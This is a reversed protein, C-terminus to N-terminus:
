IKYKKCEKLSSIHKVLKNALSINVGSKKYSNVNRENIFQYNIKIFNNLFVIRIKITKRFVPFRKDSLLRNLTLLIENSFSPIEFYILWDLLLLLM